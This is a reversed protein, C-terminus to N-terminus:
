RTSAALLIERFAAPQELHPSHGAGRFVRWEVSTFMRECLRRTTMSDMQVDHDGVIVTTPAGLRRLHSLDDRWVRNFDELVAFFVAPEFGPGHAQWVQFYQQMAAQNRWLHTLLAADTLALRAAEATRDDFLNNSEEMLERIRSSTAAATAELDAAALALLRHLASRLDLSPAVVVAREVRTLVQPPLSLMYHVGFSHTVFVIRQLDSVFAELAGVAAGFATAAEFSAGCARSPSPENWFRADRGAAALDRAFWHEEAASSM